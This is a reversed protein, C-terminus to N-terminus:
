QHEKGIQQILHEVVSDAVKIGGPRYYNGDAHLTIDFPLSAPRLKPTAIADGDRLQATPLGDSSQLSHVCNRQTSVTTVQADPAYTVACQGIGYSSNENNKYTEERTDKKNNPVPDPVHHPEGEPVPDPVHHPEGEPVHKVYRIDKPDKSQFVQSISLRFARHPGTTPEYNDIWYRYVVKDHLKIERWIYRKDQLSLLVRKAAPYSLEPLFTRLSPANITGRGTSKDALMILVTLTAYEQLSLRGTMVHDLIGRRLPVFGSFNM